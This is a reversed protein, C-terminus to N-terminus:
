ALLCKLLIRTQIMRRAAASDASEAFAPVGLSSCRRRAVLSYFFSSFFFSFCPSAPPAGTSSSTECSVAQPSIMLQFSPRVSRLKTFADSGAGSGTMFYSLMRSSGSRSGISKRAPPPTSQPLWRCNEILPMLQYPESDRLPGGPPSSLCETLQYM